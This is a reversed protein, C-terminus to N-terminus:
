LYPFPPLSLPPSVDTLSLFIWCSGRIQVRVPSRVWLGPMHGSKSGFQSRVSQPIIGLWSLWVPRPWRIRISIIRTPLHLSLNLFLSFSLSVSPSLTETPVFGQTPFLLHFEVCLNSPDAHLLLFFENNCRWSLCTVPDLNLYTTQYLFFSFM